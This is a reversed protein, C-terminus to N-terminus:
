PKQEKKKRFRKRYVVISALTVLALIPAVYLELPYNTDDSVVGAAGASKVEGTDAWISVCYGFIHDIIGGTFDIDVLWKPYVTYRDGREFRDYSLSANVSEITRGHEEAWEQAYPLAIEIAQEESINIEMSGIYIVGWWDVFNLYGEDFVKIFFTKFDVELGNPDIYQWRFSHGNEKMNLRINERTVTQNQNPSVEDLFEIFQTCYSANFDRNYTELADRVVELVSEGQRTSLPSGRSVKFYWAVGDKVDFLLKISENLYIRLSWDRVPVEDTYTYTFNLTYASVNIGAVKEIFSLAFQKKDDLSQEDAFASLNGMALPALAILTVAFMLVAWRRRSKKNEM